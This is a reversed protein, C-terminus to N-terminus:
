LNLTKEIVIRGESLDYPSLKLWLRNGVLLSPPTERRGMVFGFVVHGNALRVRCTRESVAEVIVGEVTFADEGSM